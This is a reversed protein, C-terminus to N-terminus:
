HNQKRINKELDDFSIKVRFLPHIIHKRDVESKSSDIDLIQFYTAALILLVIFPVHHQM